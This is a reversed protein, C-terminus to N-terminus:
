GAHIEGLVMGLTLEVGSSKALQRWRRLLQTPVSAGVIELESESDARVQVDLGEREADDLIARTLEDILGRRVSKPIIHEIGDMTTLTGEGSLRARRQFELDRITRRPIATQVVDHSLSSLERRLAAIDQLAIDLMAESKSESVTPEEAKLELGFQSWLPNKGNCTTGSATIHAQLARVESETEWINLHPDYFHTNIGSTDFPLSTGKEAILAVPLNLSTRVGLEFLVNPNLTSLDCLVLEAKTLEGIIKAHIMETGTSVPPVAVFDADQIAPILLHDMVHKWHQKDGKYREAHETTTTIPMAIFCKPKADGSADSMRLLIAGSPFTLPAFQWLRGQLVRM